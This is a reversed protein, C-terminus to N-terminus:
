EVTDILGTRDKTNYLIEETLLKGAEIAIDDKNSDEYKDKLEELKKTVELRFIIENLEVEAQQIGDTDIVPIGKKTIGETDMHHLRAHLNGEPIVNISGGEKHEQIVNNKLDPYETYFEAEWQKRESPTGIYRYAKPKVKTDWRAFRYNTDNNHMDEKRSRGSSYSYIPAGTETRGVLMITHGPTNPDKPKNFDQILVGDPLEDTSDGFKIEEFGYKNPNNMLDSNRLVVPVGYNDTATAICNAWNPNKFMYPLTRTTAKKIAAETREQIKRNIWDQLMGQTDPVDILEDELKTGTQAIQIEGGKKFQELLGTNDKTNHLIEETLVKGAKLAAEDSGEKQLNELLQTVELRFIIENREIEAQQEGDVDVVPIGKKTINDDKDMHHLRAHLAGAPIVNKTKPQEKKPEEKVEEVPDITIVKKTEIVIKHAKQLSDGFISDLIGGNKGYSTYNNWTGQQDAQYKDSEVGTMTQQLTKARQSEHGITALLEEQRRAELIKRTWKNWDSLSFGGFKKGAYPSVEDALANSGAWSSGVSAYVDDDKTWAPTTRGSFGNLMGTPTMQFFASGLIADKTNMGDTGGGMAKIAHGGFKNAAMILSAMTGIGPVASIGAQITDYAMDLGQTIGGKKGSYESPTNNGFLGTDLAGVAINALGMAGTAASAGKLAQASKIINGTNGILQGGARTWSNNSTGLASGIVSGAAGAIDGANGKLGQSIANYATSVGQGIQSVTNNGTAQGITGLTQSVGGAIAQGTNGGLAGNTQTTGTTNQQVNGTATQQAGNVQSSTQVPQDTKIKSITDVATQAIQTATEGFKTGQANADQAMKENAIDQSLRANTGTYEYQNTWTNGLNQFQNRFIPIGYSTNVNLRNGPSGLSNLVSQKKKYYANSSGGVADYFQQMKLKPTENLIHELIM